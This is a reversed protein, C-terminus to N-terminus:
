EFAEVLVVKEDLEYGAEILAERVAPGVIAGPPRALGEVVVDELGLLDDPATRTRVIVEVYRGTTDGKEMLPFLYWAAGSEARQTLRVTYHATGSIRVGRNDYDVDQVSVDVVRPQFGPPAGHDWWYLGTAATSVLLFPGLVVLLLKKTSAQM